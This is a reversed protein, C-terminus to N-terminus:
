QWGSLELTGIGKRPHRRDGPTASGDTPDISGLRISPLTTCLTERSGTQGGRLVAHRIAFENIYNGEKDYGHENDDSHIGLANAPPVDLARREYGLSRRAM